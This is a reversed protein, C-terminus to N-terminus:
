YTPPTAVPVIRYYRNPVTGGDPDVFQASGKLVTNTCVPTWDVYNTSVQLCFNLGNTGPLSVHISHDSLNRVTPPLIPLGTEELIVIGAKNPSGVRYEAPANSVSPPAILELVVTEYSHDALDVDELPVITILAYRQGAPISVTNPIAAYDLGNSATGGIHYNVTLSGNTAGDRRILFTATNDGNYYNSTTTTPTLIGGFNTGEVAVPDPAYISVTPPPNSRATVTISVPASTATLGASDTAVARLTYSGAPVNSWLLYFPNNVTSTNTLLVNATNSIIGISADNAFYQVTRVVNSDIVFARVGINAPATFAQGNTPYLFSVIYPLIPPPTNTIVTIKVVSSTASNGLVDTAVARLEYIGVPVSSWALPFLPATSINSVVVQSSNSVVGLSTSGAFFEVTAVTGGSEVARAYINVNAPAIYTANNAPSYIYVSPRVIVPPASTVTISVPASTATLGASDTAIARLAYSGATVNSWILYFPNGSTTNTVLVNATNSVIGISADNAFYQVTRVVNSDSLLAHVYINTPAAFTQGNNPYGWTVVFPVIAPPVNTIVKIVVVSSTATIGRADTAVARLEYNGVPVSSWALPFLPATSINSVVVQSSNSVVGLSTSGAFFEVTAVTGTTEVARAYINVNAPAIYTANNAPSYIYVSPRVIVPPASTVTISVPASTATLGASDTAIARLTYSGAAVNSWSLFFPNGSTTNTLLVNATNSVIGISADNAFYRVTRVVNSDVVLAHVGINAPSTFAQGNAPYWFSVAFPITESQAVGGFSLLALLAISGFAFPLSTNTKM